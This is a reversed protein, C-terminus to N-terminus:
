SLFYEKIKKLIDGLPRLEEMIEIDVLRYKGGRIQKLRRQDTKIEELRVLILTERKSIPESSRHVQVELSVSGFNGVDIGEIYCPPLGLEVEISKESFSSPCSWKGSHGPLLNRVRNVPHEASFSVVETFPIVSM